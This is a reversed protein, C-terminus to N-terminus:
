LILSNSAFVFLLLVFFRLKPSYFCGVRTPQTKSLSGVLSKRNRGHSGKRNTAHSFYHTKVRRRRFRKNNPKTICCTSALACVLRRGTPSAARLLHIRTSVFVILTREYHKHTELSHTHTHKTAAQNAASSKQDTLWATKTRKATRRIRESGALPRPNSKCLSRREPKQKTPARFM